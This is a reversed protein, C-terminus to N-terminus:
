KPASIPAAYQSLIRILSIYGSSSKYILGQNKEYYKTVTETRQKGESDKDSITGTIKICAPVTARFTEFDEIGDFKLTQKGDMWIQGVVLPRPVILKEAGDEQREYLGDHAVRTFTEITRNAFPGAEHLVISKRYERGDISSTGKPKVHQLYDTPGFLPVTSIIFEKPVTDEVGFYAMWDADPLQQAYLSTNLLAILVAAISCSRCFWHVTDYLTAYM